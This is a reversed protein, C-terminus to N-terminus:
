TPQRSHRQIFRRVALAEGTVDSRSIRALAEDLYTSGLNARAVLMRRLQIEAQKLLDGLLGLFADLPLLLDAQARSTRRPLPHTLAAGMETTPAHM